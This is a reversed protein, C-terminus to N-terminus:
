MLGKAKMSVYRTDCVVLHDLIEIGVVESTQLLRKTLKVDEESPEPDGSPHNHVLVMSAASREIATRFVERPHVISSDLNGKSVEHCDVIHNRTDLLVILFHEKRKGKLKALAEKFVDDPGKVVKKTIISDPDDLRKAIEGVAKLQAAKAPGMGACDCIEEPSASLVGKLTGFRALLQQALLTVPLGRTGRGLILALLEAGNLAEPGHKALRERPRESLPM